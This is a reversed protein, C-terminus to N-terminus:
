TVADCHPVNVYLFKCLINGFMNQHFVMHMCRSPAKICCYATHCCFVVMGM